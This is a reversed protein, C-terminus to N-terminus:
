LINRAEGANRSSWSHKTQVSWSEHSVLSKTQSTNTTKVDPRIEFLDLQNMNQIQKSVAKETM